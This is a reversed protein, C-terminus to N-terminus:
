QEYNEFLREYSSRANNINFVINTKLISNNNTVVFNKDVYKIQDKYKKLSFDDILTLKSECAVDEYKQCEETIIEKLTYIGTNSVILNVVRESGYSNVAFDTIHGYDNESYIIKEKVLSIKKKNDKSRIKYISSYINGDSKLVIYKKYDYYVYVGKETKSTRQYKKSEEETFSDDVWDRIENGNLNDYYDNTKYDHASYLKKDKGLLYSTGIVRTFITDVESLCQENNSYQKGNELLLSYLKGNALLVKDNLSDIVEFESLDSCKINAYGNQNSILEAMKDLTLVEKPKEVVEEEGCGTLFLCLGIMLLVLIKNKM